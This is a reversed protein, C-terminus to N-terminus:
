KTGRVCSFYLVKSKERKYVLKKEGKNYAFFSFYSANNQNEKNSWMAMFQVRNNFNKTKDKIGDLESISPLRWDSLNNLILGECYEDAHYWSGTKGVDKRKKYHKMYNDIERQSYIEDQWMLGTEEDVWVNEDVKPKQPLKRNKVEERKVAIFHNIEELEKDIELLTHTYEDEFKKEIKKYKESILNIKERLPKIKLGLKDSEALAEMFIALEEKDDGKQLRKMAHYLHEDGYREQLRSTNKKDIAYLRDIEKRFDATQALNEKKLRQKESELNKKRIYKKLATIDFKINKISVGGGSKSFGLREFGKYAEIAREKSLYSVHYIWKDWKPSGPTNFSWEGAEGMAGMDVDIYVINGTSYKTEFPVQLELNYVKVKEIVTKPFESIQYSHGDIDVSGNVITYQAVANIVPEGYLSWIKYKVKIDTTFDYGVTSYEFKGEHTKAFLSTTLLTILTLFHLLKM